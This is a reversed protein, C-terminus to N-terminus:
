QFYDEIGFLPRVFGLFERGCPASQPQGTMREVARIVMRKLPPDDPEAYSFYDLEHASIQM